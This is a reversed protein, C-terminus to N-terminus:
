HTKFVFINEKFLGTAWYLAPMSTAFEFTTPIAGTCIEYLVTATYVVM